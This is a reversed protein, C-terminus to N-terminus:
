EYEEGTASYDTHVTTVIASLPRRGPGRAETIRPPLPAPSPDRSVTDTRAPAPYASM